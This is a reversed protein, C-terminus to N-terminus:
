QALTAQVVYRLRTSGRPHCSFLTLTPTPTQDTIWMATAKVIRHGTVKYTHTTGRRTVSITDGSRLLQIDYFPRAGVTRHGGIVMNGPQGPLATGPWYGVGVDFINNSVGRYIPQSVGLRPISITGIRTLASTM